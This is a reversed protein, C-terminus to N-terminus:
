ASEQCMQHLKNVTNWNRTTARNLLKRELPSRHFSSEAFGNPLYLYIEKGLIRSRDPETTLAALEKVVAPAPVDPLFVLHLRGADAAGEKLFPNSQIATAIEGQTRTIVLAPFGFDKVIREEIKKSLAAPSHKAGKFVVNGSQIYTKVHEFGLAAISERLLEMKVKKHGGVNIGRLLAVYTPM